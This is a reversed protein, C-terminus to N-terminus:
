EQIGLRGKKAIAFYFYFLNIAATFILCVFMITYSTKELVLGMVMPGLGAGLDAIATFTGMAPGRELGTNEIVHITLIPYIFSWGTGLLVAVLIFMTLSDAFPFTVLGIIIITLCLMVVKKRDYIDLIRGGLARGLMLTIAMFVFFLGPNAVGHKLAYLPFFAAISAWIINLMFAIIAPPIARRSLFSQVKLSEKASGISERKSLKM